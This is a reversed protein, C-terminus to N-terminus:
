PIVVVEDGVRLTEFFTQADARSLHVCGHSRTGLSGAHFGVAPAFQVYFPMPARRSTGKVKYLSSFHHEDKRIVQFRGLPTEHGPQGGLAPVRLITGNPKVLWATCQSVSFCARTNRTCGRPLRSARGRRPARRAAYTDSM